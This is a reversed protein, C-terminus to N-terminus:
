AVIMLRREALQRAFAIEAGLEPNWVQQADVWRQHLLDLLKKQDDASLLNLDVMSEPNSPYSVTLVFNDIRITAQGNLQYTHYSGLRQGLSIGGALGIVIIAIAAISVVLGAISLLLAIGTTVVMLVPNSIHMTWGVLIAPVLGILTVVFSWFAGNMLWFISKMNEPSLDRVTLTNKGEFTVMGATYGQRLAYLFRAVLVAGGLTNFAFFWSLAVLADQWKLYWTFDHVYTTWLWAGSLVGIVTCIMLGAFFLWGMWRIRTYQSWALDFRYTDKVPEIM